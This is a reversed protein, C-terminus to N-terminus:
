KFRTHLFARYTGRKLFRRTKMMNTYFMDGTVPQSAEQRTKGVYCILVGGCWISYEGSVKVKFSAVAWGQVEQVEVSYLTQVLNNWDVGKPQIRVIGQSGGSQNEAM